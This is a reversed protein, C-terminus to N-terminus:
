ATPNNDHRTDNIIETLVTTRTKAVLEEFAGIFESDAVGTSISYPKGNVMFTISITDNQM